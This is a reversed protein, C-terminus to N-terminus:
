AFIRVCSRRYVCETFEVFLFVLMRTFLCVYLRANFQLDFHFGCFYFRYKKPSIELEFFFIAADVAASVVFIFFFFYHFYRAVVDATSSKYFFIYAHFFPSPVVHVCACMRRCSQFSTFVFVFHSEMGALSWIFFTLIIIRLPNLTCFFLALSCFSLLIFFLDLPLFDNILSNCSINSLQSCLIHILTRPNASLAVINSESRECLEWVYDVYECTFQTMLHIREIHSIWFADFTMIKQNDIENMSEQRGHGSGAIDSLVTCRRIWSGHARNSCFSSKVDGDCM